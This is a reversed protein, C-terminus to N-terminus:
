SFLLHFTEEPTPYFTPKLHLSVKERIQQRTSESLYEAPSKGDVRALMLMWQLRNANRSVATFRDARVQAQYSKWFAELLKLFDSRKEPLHLAKLILHNTLFALDFAPDGYWAVECDLLVMRSDRILINKPSFDGHVLALRTSKVRDAEGEFQPQLQPHKAGTFRLYSELRLAEFNETTEFRKQVDTDLWSNQHIRGMVRGAAEGWFTDIKGQLMEQKWNLFGEGLFEMTFYGNGVKQVKPISEGVWPEVTQMYLYESINRNVDAHWDAAVKLKELARKAVTKQGRDEVLFIDSSVGGTLPTMVAEPSIVGDNLLQDQFSLTM